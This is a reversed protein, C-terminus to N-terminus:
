SILSLIHEAVAYACSDVKLSANTSNMYYVQPVQNPRKVVSFTTWHGNNYNCIIHGVLVGESDRHRITELFESYTHDLNDRMGASDFVKGNISNGKAFYTLFYLNDTLGIRQALELIYDPRFPNNSYGIELMHDPIILRHHQSALQQIYESTIPLERTVLEQLAWANFTAHYGCSTADAQRSVELHTLHKNCLEYPLAIVDSTPQTNVQKQVPKPNRQQEKKLFQFQTQTTSQTKSQHTNNSTRNNHTISQRQLQQALAADQAIQTRKDKESKEAEIRSQHLAKQLAQQESLSGNNYNSEMSLLSSGILIALLTLIIYNKM